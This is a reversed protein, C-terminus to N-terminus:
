DSFNIGLIFDGNIKDFFQQRPNKFFGIHRLLIGKTGFISIQVILDFESWNESWFIKINQLVFLSSM